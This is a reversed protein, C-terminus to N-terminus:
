DLSAFFLSLQKLQPNYISLLDTMKSLMKSNLAFNEIEKLKLKTESIDNNIEIFDKM